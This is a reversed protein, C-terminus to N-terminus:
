IIHSSECASCHKLVVKNTKVPLSSNREVTCRGIYYLQLHKHRNSIYGFIFLTKLPPKEKRKKSIKNEDDHEEKDDDQLERNRDGCCIGRTRDCWADAYGRECQNAMSKPNSARGSAVRSM